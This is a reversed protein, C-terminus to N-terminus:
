SYSKILLVKELMIRLSENIPYERELFEPSLTTLQNKSSDIFPIEQYNHETKLLDRYAESKEEKIIKCVSYDVGKKGHRASVGFSRCIIGRHAYEGCYGQFHQKDTVVLLACHSLTEDNIKDLIELAKQTEVLHLAMPLLEIPSCYIETKFCCKGCKDLCSLNANKQFSSFHSTLNNYEETISEALQVLRQLNLSSM